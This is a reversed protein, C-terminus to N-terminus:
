AMVSASRLRRAHACGSPPIPTFMWCSSLPRAANASRSIVFARAARAVNSAGHGGVAAAQLATVLKRPDQALHAVLHRGARDVTLSMAPAHEVLCTLAQMDTRQVVIVLVQGTTTRDAPSAPSAPM